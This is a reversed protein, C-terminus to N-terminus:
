STSVLRAFVIVNDAYDGTRSNFRGGCTILRLASWGVDGYVEGTPFSNKAHREVRGVRFTATSGDARDVVIRDGPRMARLDHFAGKRDNWDVHGVIVSPGLEGPTPSGDYWGVPYAGPPLEMTGDAELGLEMVSSTMGLVPIRIKVPKSASMPPVDGFTVPAAEASSSSTTSPPPPPAIESMTPPLEPEAVAADPVARRVPENSQGPAVLALVLVAVGALALLM